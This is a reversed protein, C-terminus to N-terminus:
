ENIIVQKINNNLQLTTLQLMKPTETPVYMIYRLGSCQIMKNQFKLFTFVKSHKRENYFVFQISFLFIFLTLVYYLKVLLTVIVIISHLLLM